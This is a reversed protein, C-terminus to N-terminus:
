TLCHKGLWAINNSIDLPDTDHINNNRIHVIIYLQEDKPEKEECSKPPINLSLM